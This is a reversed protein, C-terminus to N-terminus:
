SRPETVLAVASGALRGGRRRVADIAAQLERLYVDAQESESRPRAFLVQSSAVAIVMDPGYPEDVQWGTFKATPQGVVVHSGAAYLHAPDSGPADMHFVSGDHSLYDVRLYGPFDPMTLRAIILDGHQLPAASGDVAMQLGAGASGFRSAIPRLVDLARCYPGDFDSVRWDVGAAPAAGALARRLTSEAEGRQVLGLLQVGGNTVEGGVLACDVGAVASAIADRSLPPANM